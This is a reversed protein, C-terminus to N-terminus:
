IKHGNKNMQFIKWTKTHKPRSFDPL